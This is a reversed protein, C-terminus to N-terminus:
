GNNNSSDEEENQKRREYKLKFEMEKKYDRMILDANRSGGRRM